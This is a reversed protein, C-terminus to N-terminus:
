DKTAMSEVVSPSLTVKVGALIEAIGGDAKLESVHTKRVGRRDDRYVFTVDGTEANYSTVTIPSGFRTYVM